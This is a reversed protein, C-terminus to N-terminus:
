KPLLVRNIVHVVGNSAHIDAKTVRAAGVRVTGDATRVRLRQESLAMVSKRKVLKAAPLRKAVVHNLLVKRLKKRDSALEELAEDPVRDFARDTPAFVTFPGDARLAKVLKAKKLLSVLTDFQNSSAATDVIDKQQQGQASVSPITVALALAAVAVLMAITRSM